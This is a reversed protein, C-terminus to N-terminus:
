GFLAEATLKNDALYPLVEQSMGVLLTISPTTLGMARKIKDPIQYAGTNIYMLIQLHEPNLEVQLASPPLLQVAAYAERVLYCNTFFNRYDESM